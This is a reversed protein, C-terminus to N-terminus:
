KGVVVKPYRIIIDGLKYGKEVTDIIKGSMGPEPAPIQTVAQHIDADFVEGAPTEIVSLGQQKLIHMFKQYILEMGKYLADDGERQIESLGREFDDIVPLLETMLERGATKFLEIREKSTRKKYNEFEAFLRLYREKEQELQEQLEKIKKGQSNKVKEQKKTQKTKNKKNEKKNEKNSM